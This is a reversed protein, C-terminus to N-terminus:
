RGGYNREKGDVISKGGSKKEFAMGKGTFTSKGIDSLSEGRDFRDKMEALQLNRLEAVRARSADTQPAKRGLINEIRRQMAGALGYNVPTGFLGGSVPNYGKMIGSAISGSSTLGEYPSYFERIGIARPDQKPFLGRILNAGLNNNALNKLFKVIGSPEEKLAEEDGEEDDEFASTQFQFNQKPKFINDTERERAARLADIGVFSTLDGLQPIKTGAAIAATEDPDYGIYDAGKGIEDLDKMFDPLSSALSTVGTNLTNDITNSMKNATLNLRDADSLINNTSQNLLALLEETTM